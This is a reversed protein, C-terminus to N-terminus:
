SFILKTWMWSAFYMRRGIWDFAFIRIPNRNNEHIALPASLHYNSLVSQFVGVMM